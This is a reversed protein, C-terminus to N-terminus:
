LEVIRRPAEEVLKWALEQNNIYGGGKVTDTFHKELSDDPHFVANYGGQVMRTCGSQGLLGKVSVVIKLKRSIEHAHMGALLGAGGAGLILIDAELNESHLDYM